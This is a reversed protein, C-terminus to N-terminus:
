AGLIIRVVENYDDGTPPKEEADLRDNYAGVAEQAQELRTTVHELKKRLMLVEVILRSSTEAGVRGFTHLENQAKTVIDM